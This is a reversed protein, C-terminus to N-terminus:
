GVGASGARPLANETRGTSSGDAVNWRSVSEASATLCHRGMRCSPSDVTALAGHGEIFRAETGPARTELRIRGDPLAAAILSGDPSITLKTAAGELPRQEEIPSVKQWLKVIRYGGSALWQGDPSFDLTHVFDRHAAGELAPDSLTAVQRQRLIDYVVIDNGRGAAVYREDPTLALSYIPNLTDPLSQWKIAGGSGMSAKAGQEIWLKLLGAEHPTLPKANADNPLPPMFSEAQRTAQTFLLSEEPKGAM